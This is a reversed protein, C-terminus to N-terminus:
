AVHYPFGIEITELGILSIREGTSIKLYRPKLVKTIIQRWRRTSQHASIQSLTLLPISQAIRHAHAREVGSKNQLYPFYKKMHRGRMLGLQYNSSTILKSHIQLNDESEVPSFKLSLVKPLKLDM